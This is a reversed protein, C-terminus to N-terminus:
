RLHCITSARRGATATVFGHKGFRASRSRCRQRSSPSSRRSVLQEWNKGLQLRQDETLEPRRDGDVRIDAVECRRQPAAWAVALCELCAGANAYGCAIERGGSSVRLLGYNYRVRISGEAVGRPLQFRRLETEQWKQGSSRQLKSTPERLVIRVEARVEEGRRQRQLVACLKTEQDNLITVEFKSGDGDKLLPPWTVQTAVDLVPATRITKEITAGEGLLLRGKEWTVPGTIHYRDRSDFQFDDHFVVRDKLGMALQRNPGAEQGCVEKTRAGALLGCALMVIAGVGAARFSTRHGRAIGM